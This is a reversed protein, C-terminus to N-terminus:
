NDIPAIFMRFEPFEFCIPFPENTLYVKCLRGQHKEFFDILYRSNFCQKPSEEENELLIFNFKIKKGCHDDITMYKKEFEVQVEIDPEILKPNPITFMRNICSNHIHVEMIDGEEYEYSVQNEFNITKKDVWFYNYNKLCEIIFEDIKVAIEIDENSTSFIPIKYELISVCDEDIWQLNAENKKNIILNSELLQPVNKSDLFHM